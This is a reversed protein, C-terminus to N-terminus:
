DSTELIANEFQILRRSTDDPETGDMKVLYTAPDYKNIGDIEGQDGRIALRTGMPYPPTICCLTEWLWEGKDIAQRAISEFEDLTDTDDQNVDWSFNDRLVMALDFGDMLGGDECAEIIDDPSTGLKHAIFTAAPVIYGMFTDDPRTSPVISTQPQMHAIIRLGLYFMDTFLRGFEEWSTRQHKFTDAFAATVPDYTTENDLNTQWWLYYGTATLAMLDVVKYISLTATAGESGILDQLAQWGMRIGHFAHTEPLESKTIEDFAHYSFLECTSRLNGNVPITIAKENAILRSKLQQYGNSFGYCEAMIDHAKSSKVTSGTLAKFKNDFLSAAAKHNRQTVLTSTTVFPLLNANRLTNMFTSQQLFLESWYQIESLFADVEDDQEPVDFNAYAAHMKSTLDPITEQAERAMSQAHRAADMMIAQAKTIEYPSALHRLAAGEWEAFKLEDFIIDNVPKGALRSISRYATIFRRIHFFFRAMATYVSHETESLESMDPAVDDGLLTDINRTDAIHLLDLIDHDSYADFDLHTFRARLAKRFQGPLDTTDNVYVVHNSLPYPLLMNSAGNDKRTSENDVGSPHTIM